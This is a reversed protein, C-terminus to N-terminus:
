TDLKTRKEFPDVVKLKLKTANTKKLNQQKINSQGSRNLLINSYDVNKM